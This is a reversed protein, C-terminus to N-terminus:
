GLEITENNLRSIIDLPLIEVDSANEGNIKKLLMEVAADAMKKHPELRLFGCFDPYQMLEHGLVSIRCQEKTDIGYKKLIPLIASYAFSHCNIGDPVDGAALRRELVDELLETQPLEWYKEVSFGSKEFYEAAAAYQLQLFPDSYFFHDWLLKKRGEGLFRKVLEAGSKEADLTVRYKERIGFLSVTPLGNRNLNDPIEHKIYIHHYPFVWILGDLGASLLERITLAPNLPDSLSILRPLNGAQLVRLGVESQLVWNTYEAVYSRSDDIIIGIVKGSFNRRMSRIRDPNIYTGSGPKGVLYGEAALKKLEAVVSMRSIDLKDALKQASPIKQVAGQSKTIIGMIEFRVRQGVSQWKERSNKVM